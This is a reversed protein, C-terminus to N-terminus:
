EEEIKLRQDKKDSIDRPEPYEVDRESLSSKDTILRLEDNLYLKKVMKGNKALRYLIRGKRRVFYMGVVEAVFLEREMGVGLTEVQDGIDIGESQVPLWLCPQLRFWIDGYRVHYFVGDFYERRLVRESPIIRNANSVDHPHIFGQGDEPWRAICGYDPLQPSLM